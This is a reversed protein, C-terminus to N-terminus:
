KSGGAAAGVKAGPASFRLEGFRAAGQRDGNDGDVMVAYGDLADVRRGFAAEFDAAVDRTECTWVGAREAGSEVAIMMAKDTFPSKWMTGAPRGSAWVYNLALTQWPLFGDKVVVYLRAPYDDGGKTLEDIDPYVGEIKWSWSLEPTAALDVGIERYLISAAGDTRADLVRRGDEQVLSYDTRGEFERQQWADLTADPFEGPAPCATVDAAAPVASALLALAAGVLPATRRISPM